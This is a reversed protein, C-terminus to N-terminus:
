IFKDIKTNKKAKYEDYENRVQQIETKYDQYMKNKENRVSDLYKEYEDIQASLSVTILSLALLLFTRKM